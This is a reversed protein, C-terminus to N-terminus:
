FTILIAATVISFLARRRMKKREREVVVRLHCYVNQFERERTIKCCQLPVSKCPFNTSKKKKKKREREKFFFNKKEIQNNKRQISPVRKRQKANKKKNNKKKKEKHM